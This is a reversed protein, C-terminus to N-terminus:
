RNRLTWTVDLARDIGSNVLPVNLASPPAKFPVYRITALTGAMM